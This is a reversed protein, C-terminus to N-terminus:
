KSKKVLEGYIYYGGAGLLLLSGSGLLLGDIFSIESMTKQINTTNTFSPPVSKKAKELDRM